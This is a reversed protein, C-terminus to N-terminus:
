CQDDPEGADEEIIKNNPDLHVIVPKFTRYERADIAVFAIIIVKDGKLIKRAAAGNLCIEGSGRRGEIVYTELREGSDLSVVMVKEFPLLGARDMLERDITISGQYHIQADTVTARHIKCKLVNIFM